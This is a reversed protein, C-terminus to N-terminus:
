GVGFRNKLFLSTGATVLKGESMIAIRDGLEDAEDMFHTSVVIIRDQRYDRLVKWVFRRNSTDMGSTCEDLYIVKSDGIFAIALQLKRKQGGSLNKALYHAKEQMDLDEILKRVQGRVKAQPTGKFTAFLELHETVTLDDFLTNVQPCVGMIKRLEDIDQNVDFGFVTMKGGSPKLLGSLMNLTTSKGAGNHGLLM